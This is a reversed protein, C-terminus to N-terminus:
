GLATALAISFGQTSITGSALPLTLNVGSGNSINGTVTINTFNGDTVNSNLAVVAEVVDEANAIVGTANKLNVIDGVDKATDNFTQRFEEFTNSPLVERIAM